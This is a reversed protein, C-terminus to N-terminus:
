EHQQVGYPTRDNDDNDDDDDDNNYPNGQFEKMAAFTGNWKIMQVTGWTGHGLVRVKDEIDSLCPIIVGFEDKNVYRTEKPDNSSYGTFARQWLLQEERTMRSSKRYKKSPESTKSAQSTPTAKSRKAENM